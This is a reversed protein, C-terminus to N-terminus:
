GASLEFLRGLTLIQSLKGFVPREMSKGIVPLSTSYCCQRCGM